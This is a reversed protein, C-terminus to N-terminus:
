PSVGYVWAVSGSEPDTGASVPEVLHPYLAESVKPPLLRNLARLAEERSPNNVTELRPWLLIIAASNLFAQTESAEEWPRVYSLILYSHRGSVKYDYFYYIGPMSGIIGITRANGRPSAAVKEAVLAAVRQYFAASEPKAFIRYGAPTDFGVLQDKHWMGALHKAWFIPMAIACRLLLVVVLAQTVAGGVALPLAIGLAAFVSDHYYHFEQTFFLQSSVLYVLPPVLLVCPFDSPVTAAGNRTRVSPRVLWLVYLVSACGLLAPLQTDLFFQLSSWGPYRIESTVYNYSNRLFLPWVIDWATQPPLFFRLTGWGLVAALLYASGTWVWSRFTAVLAGKDTRRAFLSIADTALLALGAAFQTGFKTYHLVAFILGLLVSAFVPRKDPISWILMVLLVCAVEIYHYLLLFMIGRSFMFLIVLLFLLQPVKLFKRYVVVALILTAWMCTWQYNVFMEPTNGFARAFLLYPAIAVPGYPWWTDQYLRGGHFVTSTIVLPYGQDVMLPAALLPEKQGTLVYVVALLLYGVFLLISVSAVWSTKVGM